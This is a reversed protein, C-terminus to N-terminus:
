SLQMAAWAAAEAPPLPHWFKQEPLLAYASMSELFWEPRVARLGCRSYFFGIEEPEASENAVVLVRREKRRKAETEAMAYRDALRVCSDRSRVVIGGGTRILDAFQAASSKVFTDVPFYVALGAFLRRPPSAALARRARAAGRVHPARVDGSLEYSAVPLWHGADLSEDIWAEGVCWLGRLIGNFYKITRMASVYGGGTETPDDPVARCVVHTIANSFREGTYVRGGLTKCAEAMRTRMDATLNSGVLVFDAPALPSPTPPSASPLAFVDDVAEAARTTKAKKKRKSPTNDKSASLRRSSTRRKVGAGGSKKTKKLPTATKSRSSANKSSSKARKGSKKKTPTKKSPAKAKKKKMAARKKEDAKAAAQLRASARQRASQRRSENKRPSAFATSTSSPGVSVDNAAAAAAKKRRKTPPELSQERADGDGDGDQSADDGDAMVDFLLTDPSPAGSARRRRKRGKGRSAAASTATSLASTGTHLSSVGTTAPPTRARHKSPQLLGVSASPQSDLVVMGTADNNTEHRPRQGATVTVSANTNTSTNTSTNAPGNITGRTAASTDALTDGSAPGVTAAEDNPVYVRAAVAAESAALVASMAEREKSGVVRPKTEHSHPNLNPPTVGLADILPPPSHSRVAAGAAAAAAAAAEATVGNDVASPSSTVDNEHVTDARTDAGSNVSVNHASTRSANNGGGGFLVDAMINDPGLLAAVGGTSTQPRSKKWPLSEEPARLTAGASIERAVPANM